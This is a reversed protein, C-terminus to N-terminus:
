LYAIEVGYRNLLTDHVASFGRNSRVLVIGPKGERLFSSFIMGPIVDTDNSIVYIPDFSQLAFYMADVVVMGDVMKQISHGGKRQLTHVIEDESACALSCSLTPLIRMGQTRKRFRTIAELLWVARSTLSGDQDIWGGYIRVSAEKPRFRSGNLFPVLADSFAALNLLADGPTRERRHAPGVNDYDLLVYAHRSM